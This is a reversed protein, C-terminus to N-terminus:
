GAFWWSDRPSETYDQSECEDLEMQEQQQARIIANQKVNEAIMDKTIVATWDGECIITVVDDSVMDHSFPVEKWIGGFRTGSQLLVNRTGIDNPQRTNTYNRIIQTM